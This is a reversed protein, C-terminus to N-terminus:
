EPEAAERAQQQKNVLDDFDTVKLNISDGEIEKRVETLAKIAAFPNETENDEIIRQFTLIRVKKQAMPISSLDKIWEDRYKQIIPQAKKSGSISLIGDYTIEIGPWTEKIGVVIAPIKAFEALRKYIYDKQNPSLKWTKKTKQPGESKEIIKLKKEKKKKM